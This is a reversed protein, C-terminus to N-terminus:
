SRIQIHIHDDHRAARCGQFGLLPSSVGMRAALYPEIFIRQVQFKEGQTTLWLLAARTRAVDMTRDPILNQIPDLDWRLTLWHRQPCLTQDARGPQEFGFYGIPSRLAGPLYSGNPGDYYYAIDLKRGDGHSLHPVLPFGNLFPFNADLFLTTTGSFEDNISRSLATLLEVLRADVYHRNFACYLPHAAAFPRDPKARCPLPVRCARAALDPIVFATMATYLGAFLFVCLGTRQWGQLRKPFALWAVVLTLVFIIGGVQTLLTLILLLAVLLLLQILRRPKSTVTERAGFTRDAQRSRFEGL